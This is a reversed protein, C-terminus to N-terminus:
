GPFLTQSVSVFTIMLQINVTSPTLAHKNAMIYTRKIKFVRFYLITFLGSCCFCFGFVVIVFLIIIGIHIIHKSIENM